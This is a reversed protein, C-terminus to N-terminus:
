KIIMKKTKTLNGIKLKYFYVGESLNNNKTLIKIVHKGFDYSKNNIVNMVKKGLLNYISITINQKDRLKFSIYTEENVPNPYNQSLEFNVNFYDNNSAIADDSILATWISSDGNHVRNWIPRIVGNHASINIYDGFFVNDTPVFPTESILINQFSVGGDTSRALYVDTNNDSYNRRDYFVIYINGNTQDIDMWSLFQQKGAPDDNVRISDSWTDGGDISKKLWVDTDEFGNRQDTWNVYITGNNAGGSVDCATIPMGNCRDLGSINFDWGGPMSDVIIDNALWTLGGDLSRDFILGDPGGWVTYIEGNPGIAPVAGEVTLDSDICNGDIENIKLPTSWNLGGDISKTFLIRTKDNSNSSGYVDFESWLVYINNNSDVVGWEKDQEKSDNIGFFSGDNFSVGNDTSKQCVIRDLWFGSDSPNSLHLFYFNNNYDILLSPDGWVGLNSSLVNESWTVGSDTSVYYNAINSAAFQINTNNPNIVIAPENPNNSDSIMVNTFQAYISISLLLLLLFLRNKM